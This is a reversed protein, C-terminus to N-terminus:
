KSSPFFYVFVWTVIQCSEAYVTFYSIQKGVEQMQDNFEALLDVVGTDTVEVMSCQVVWEVSQSDDRSFCDSVQAMRQFLLRFMRPALGAQVPSQWLTFNCPDFM